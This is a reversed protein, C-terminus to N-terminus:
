ARAVTLGYVRKAGADELAFTCASLTSGTTMLDDILIIEQGRVVHEDAVFADLVNQFRATPDLGVQSRTERIRRLATRSNELGLVDALGDAILGAQNYGRQRIRHKGLPVAVLISGSWGTRQFVDALWHGMINALDQNPQYKLHLLARLLSGEYKAYSRVKLTSPFGRCYRCQVLSHHSPRGCRLCMPERFVQICGHCDSCWIEGPQNCGVCIPPYILDLGTRWWLRAIQRISQKHLKLM